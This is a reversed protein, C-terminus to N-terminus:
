VDVDAEEFIQDVEVCVIVATLTAVFIAFYPHQTISYTYFGASVGAVFGASPSLIIDRYFPM